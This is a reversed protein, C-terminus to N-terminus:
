ITGVLSIVVLISFVQQERGNGHAQKKFPDLAAADIAGVKIRRKLFKKPDVLPNRPGFKGFYDVRAALQSAMLSVHRVYM